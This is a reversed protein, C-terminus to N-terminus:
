QSIVYGDLGDVMRCELRADQYIRQEKRERAGSWVQKTM